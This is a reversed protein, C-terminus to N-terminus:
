GVAEHEGCAPCDAAVLIQERVLQALIANRLGLDTKQEVVGERAAAIEYAEPWHQAERVVANVPELRERSRRPYEDHGIDHTDIVRM